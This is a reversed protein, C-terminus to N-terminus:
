RLWFKYSLYDGQVLWSLYCLYLVLEIAMKGYLLLFSDSLEVESEIIHLVLEAGFTMGFMVPAVTANGEPRNELILKRGVNILGGGM